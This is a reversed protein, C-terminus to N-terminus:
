VLFLGFLLIAFLTLTATFGSLWRPAHALDLYRSLILRSKLLALLLVLGGILKPPLNLATLLASGLSLAILLGWATLLGNSKASIDTQTQDSM